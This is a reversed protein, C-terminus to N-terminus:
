GHVVGAVESGGVPYMIEDALSRLWWLLKYGMLGSRSVGTAM